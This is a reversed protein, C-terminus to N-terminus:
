RESRSRAVPQARRGLRLEPANSAGRAPHPNRALGEPTACAAPYLALPLARRPHAPDVLVTVQTGEEFAPTKSWRQFTCRATHRTGAREFELSLKAGGRFRKVRRVSAEVEQGREFLDRVRAVRLAVLGTLVLVLATASALFATAVGPDVPVEPRNRGGPLTGTLKVMLAFFLLVPSLSVIRYCANDTWVISWPSPLRRM